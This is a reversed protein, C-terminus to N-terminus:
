LLMQNYTIKNQWKTKKEDKREEEEEDGGGGKEKAADVFEGKQDRLFSCKWPDLQM